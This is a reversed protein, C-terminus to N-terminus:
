SDPGANDVSGTLQRQYEAEDLHGLSELILGDGDLTWEEHGKLNV